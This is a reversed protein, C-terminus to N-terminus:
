RTKVKGFLRPPSLSDTRGIGQIHLNNAISIFDSKSPLWVPTLPFKLLIRVSLTDSTCFTKIASADYLIQQVTSDESGTITIPAGLIPFFHKGMETTLIEPKVQTDKLASLEINYCNSAALGFLTYTVPINDTVTLEQTLKLDQLKKIVWASKLPVQVYVNKYAWKVPISPTDQQVGRARFSMCDFREKLFPVVMDVKWLVPDNQSPLICTFFLGILSVISFITSSLLRRKGKYWKTSPEKLITNRM